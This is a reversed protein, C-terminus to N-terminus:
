ERQVLADLLRDMGSPIDGKWIGQESKCKDLECSMEKSISGDAWIINVDHNDLDHEECGEEYIDTITGVQFQFKPDTRWARRVSDGLTYQGLSM